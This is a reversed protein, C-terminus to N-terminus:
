IKFGIKYKTKEPESLLKKLINFIYQIQQDHAEIKKQLDQHTALMERLRTFVRMIQINIQIARESNLVSSLMAIGNETFVFPFYRVGGRNSTAFQSRLDEFEKKTLQFMFDDPFRKMNRKVQENLRKTPVGYLVALDKDLMVKKGRVLLIKTEIVKQPVNSKILKKM